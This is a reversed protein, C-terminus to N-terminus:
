CGRRKRGGQWWRRLRQRLSERHNQGLREGELFRRLDEALSEASPYRQAPDKRLCKLCISELDADVGPNCSRLPVPDKGVVQLVTDVATAGRFPPRGTLLEYLLAGLGYVDTAPGVAGNRGLAQEPAMYSPTGLISGGEGSDGPRPIPKACDFGVLLPIGDATLLVNAPKVDRHIIGREHVHHVAEALNKVWRAAQQNSQPTGDLKQDLYVGEVYERVAFPVGDHEGVMRLPILLPHCLSAEIRCQRLFRTRLLSNDQLKSGGVLVEVAVTQGLALDRAKYIVSLGDRTIEGLLEFGPINASM